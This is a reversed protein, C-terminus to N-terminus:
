KDTLKKINNVQETLENHFDIITQFLDDTICGELQTNRDEQTENEDAGYGSSVLKLFDHNEHIIENINLYGVGQPLRHGFHNILAVTDHFLDWKPTNREENM